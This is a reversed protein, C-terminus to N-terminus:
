PKRWNLYISSIEIVFHDEEIDTMPHSDTIIIRVDGVSTEKFDEAKLGASILEHKTAPLSRIDFGTNNFYLDVLRFGGAKGMQYAACM